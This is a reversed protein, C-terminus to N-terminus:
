AFVKDSRHHSRRTKRLRCHEQDKSAVVDAEWDADDIWELVLPYLQMVLLQESCCSCIIRQGIKLRRAPELVEECAPCTVTLTLLEGKLM